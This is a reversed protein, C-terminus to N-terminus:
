HSLAVDPPLQHPSLWKRYIKLFGGDRKLEKLEREWARIIAPSTGKSFAFHVEVLDLRFAVEVESERYGAQRLADGYLEEGDFWLDFRRNLLMKAATESTNTEDLVQYGQARPLSVFISSRRGGARLTHLDINQKQWEAPKGKLAFATVRTNFIAGAFHLNREREATRVISLLLVGPGVVALSNARAWPVIEIVDHQNLRDQIARALEVAFGDPRSDNLFSIPRSEMGYIKLPAAHAAGALLLGLTCVFRIM